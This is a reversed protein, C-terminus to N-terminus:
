WGTPLPFIKQKGDYVGWIGNYDWWRSPKIEITGTVYPLPGGGLIAPDNQYEYIPLEEGMYTGVVSSVRLNVSIDDPNRYTTITQIRKNPESGPSDTDVVMLNATYFCYPSFNDDTNYFLPQQYRDGLLANAEDNGWEPWDLNPEFKTVIELENNINREGNIIQNVEADWYEPTYDRVVDPDNLICELGIVAQMEKVRCIYEFAKDFSLGVTRYRTEEATQSAQWHFPFYDRVNGYPTGHICFGVRAM